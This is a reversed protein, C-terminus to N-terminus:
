TVPKKPRMMIEDPLHSMIAYELERSDIPKVLYGNYGLSRYYADGDAIMDGTLAYVPLDPHRRRIKEIIPIGDNGCVMTDLFVVDFTGYKIKQLCEAANGATTVFVRTETLLNRIVMLNKPNNDVVLVEADPAIFKPVYPQVEKSQSQESFSGIETHDRILQEVSLIFETGEGYTSECMLDGGLMQAFQKSISLGLGIDDTDEGSQEDLMEYALFVKEVQEPTMGVGTDKVCIRLRCIESTKEVVIVHLTITGMPTYKISNNLLTMIIQSIKGDDGYLKVPLTPDLELQFDLNHEECGLRVSAVIKQMLAQTDYDRKNLHAKGSEIISIDFLDNVLSLLVESASHIETAHSKVMAGYENASEPAVARLLMEDLGLITNIPTRIERSMNALFHSKAANAQEVAAKATQVENYQKRIITGTLIRWIFFGILGVCVAIALIRVVLLEVLKPRKMVAFTQDQYITQGTADVIQIHLTYNGYPIGTYELYNLRHVSATIGKDDMGELYMHVTPNSMSYDLIAPNVQVRHATKPLIYTGNADPQIIKGDCYIEQVGIRIHSSLERYNNINVSCVGTRGALYLNGNEDIDSFANGTPISSLGNEMNYLRYEHINNALMDSIKVRYLGYSSAVWIHEQNDFFIAYNNNYPFSDINTILDHHMFEISNSTVIWVGDNTADYKLRLIVDSTLGDDRTIKRVKGHEYVYIGDGDTGFYLEEGKGEEVTLLVTNDLGQEKGVTSVIRGNRFVCLGMNTGVLVRGDHALCACRAENCPMGDETTFQLIEHKQTYCIVGMDNSYTCIWINGDADRIICRIRVGDLKQTLENTVPKMQDIIQLGHDTGVYLANEFVCTANVVDETMGSIATVNRFNSSVVKMLGQKSSAIWLNGQYDSTLMEISANMPVETLPHYEKKLDLYGVTTKSCIWIRNCESSIWVIEDPMEAQIMQYSKLDSQLKGFYVHRDDAGLYVYGPNDPDPYITTFAGIGMKEGSIVASVKGHAICFADGNRTTGYIKGETDAVLRIIYQDALDADEFPHVQYDDSVFVIGNTTGVWVNGEEDQAFGHISSAPLGEKYTIHTCERGDVVVVGNDNTGVWIRNKNDQFLVRGSTLGKSADMREFNEGGYRFVGSYGATWLYGDNAALVCNVDSTPLGNSADYMKALYGGDTQGSASFGGGTTDETEDAGAPMFGGTFVFLVAVAVACKKIWRKNKM